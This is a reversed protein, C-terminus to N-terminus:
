RKRVKVTVTDSSSLSGDGVTLRFVYTGPGRTVSATATTGVLTVPTPSTQEWRYTLADGDPDSSARGDLTFTATGTSKSSAVNQDPGAKAIPASNPTPPPPPSTAGGLPGHSIDAGFTGGQGNNPDGTYAFVRLSWTGAVTPRATVTEQRGIGCPDGIACTSEDVVRGAPDLLQVDLDPGWEVIFCGYYCIAQGDLTVTVSLPVGLGSSPVTIPISVSGNRPVSGTVRSHTPFAAGADTGGTLRSVFAKADVLGAGWDVDKGAPGWDEATASMAALVDAPTASPQAQLGLAVVGAVYPTAMSTGSYAVYGAATGARAAEVTVGPGVVDPKVRGDVTPGRSSFPALFVGADAYASGVPASHDSAAGVTIAKRAAGPSPVTMRDDGANGAAVVVVKGLDVAADVEQSVADGGDSPQDEGLSMSIVRVAPQAACWEIAGIIAANTGFGRSDLAKAVYLAAAPAVGVHAAAATGGEGDGAAIALVHTGHGHDDYPTTSTGVFDRFVVTRGALQEHGADAGTDIVCIGVGAGTVGLSSRAAAAGYDVDTATDTVHFVADAEVRRTESLAALRRAQAATMTAAFGEVLTYSQRVAFRGVALQARTASLGTVVVGLQQDARASALRPEFDDSVKDHDRDAMAAGPPRQTSGPRAVGAGTSAVLVAGVLPVVLATRRAWTMAMRGVGEAGTVM